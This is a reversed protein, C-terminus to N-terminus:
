LQISFVPGYTGKNRREYRKIALLQKRNMCSNSWNEEIFTFNLMFFQDPSKIDVSVTIYNMKPDFIEPLRTIIDEKM